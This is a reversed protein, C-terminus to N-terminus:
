SDTQKYHRWLSPLLLLTTTALLHNRIGSALTSFTFHDMLLRIETQLDLLSLLLLLLPVLPVRERRARPTNM